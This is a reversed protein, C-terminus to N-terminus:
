VAIVTPYSFRKEARLRIKSYAWGSLVCEDDHQDLIARVSDGTVALPVSLVKYGQSQLPEIILRYNWPKHSAGPIIIIIQTEFSM